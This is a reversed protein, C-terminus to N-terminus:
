YFLISLFHILTKTKRKVILHRDMVKMCGSLHLGNLVNQQTEVDAFTM